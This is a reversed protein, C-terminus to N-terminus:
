KKFLDRWTKRPKATQGHFHNHLNDPFALHLLMKSGEGHTSGQVGSMEPDHKIARQMLKAYNHGRQTDPGDKISLTDRRSPTPRCHIVVHNTDPHHKAVTDKLYDKTIHHVTALTDTPDVGLNHAAYNTNVGDTKTGFSVDVHHVGAQDDRPHFVAEYNHGGAEWNYTARHYTTEEKRYKHPTFVEALLMTIKDVVGEAKSEDALGSRQLKEYYDPREELHDMVIELAINPNDTHESEVKLGKELASKDFESPHKKDGKGGPLRKGTYNAILHDIDPLTAERIIRALVAQTDPHQPM